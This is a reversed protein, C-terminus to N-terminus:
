ILKNVAEASLKINQGIEKFRYGYKRAESVYKAKFDKLHRKRSGEKILQFDTQHLGVSLLIDDLNPKDISNSNPESNSEDEIIESNEYFSKDLPDKMDMFIDYQELAIKRNTSLMNLIIDINVLGPTNTRYAKDSSWPYDKIFKCIHAEVPNQHIYRLLSLLYKDDKVFISKYRGEFVHGTRHYQKNYTKSFKNNVKQMVKYLESKGRKIMLHYHNDMIVYGLLQFPIEQRTEELISLLKSKDSSGNFIFERNNGRQIVHYIANPLELRPKRGMAFGGLITIINPYVTYNYVINDSKTHM